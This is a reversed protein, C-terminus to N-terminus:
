HNDSDTREALVENGAALDIKSLITRVTTEFTLDAGVYFVGRDVNDKKSAAWARRRDPSITIGAVYNPVGRGSSATDPGLDKALAITDALTFSAADVEWVEGRTSLSTFRTILIRSSDDRV